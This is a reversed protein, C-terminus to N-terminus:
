DVHGGDKRILEKMILHFMSWHATMEMNGADTLPEKDTM